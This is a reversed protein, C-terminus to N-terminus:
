TFVKELVKEGPGNSELERGSCGKSGESSSIVVRLQVSPATYMKISILLLNSNRSCSLSTRLPPFEVM